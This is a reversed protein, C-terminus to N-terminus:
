RRANIASKLTLWHTARKVAEQRAAKQDGTEHLVLGLNCRANGEWQRDGVESAIAAAKSFNELAERSRILDHTYSFLVADPAANLRISEATAVPATM